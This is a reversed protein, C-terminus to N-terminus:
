LPANLVASLMDVVATAGPFRGVSGRAHVEIWCEPGGRYSIVLTLPERGSRPPHRRWFTAKPPQARHGEAPRRMRVRKWEWQVITADAVEKAQDM